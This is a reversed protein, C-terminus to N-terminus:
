CGGAVYKSFAAIEAVHQPSVNSLYDIFNTSYMKNM